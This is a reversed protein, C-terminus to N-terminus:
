DVSPQCVKNIDFQRQYFREIYALLGDFLAVAIKQCFKDSGKQVERSIYAVITNIITQEEESLFLAENLDYYFFDYSRVKGALPTHWLFDPHICLMWGSAGSTVAKHPEVKVVQLIRRNHELLAANVAVFEAYGCANQLLAFVADGVEFEETDRSTEVVEGSIDWGM